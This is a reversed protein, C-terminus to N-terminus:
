YCFTQFFASLKAMKPNEERLSSSSGSLVQQSDNANQEPEAQTYHVMTGFYEMTTGKCSSCSFTV